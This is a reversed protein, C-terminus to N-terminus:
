GIGTGRPFVDRKAKPLMEYLNNIVMQMRPVDESSAAEYGQDILEQAKTQDNYEDIRSAYHSYFLWSLFSPVRWRVRFVLDWLRQTVDKIRHVNNSRLIERESSLIDELNRKEPETGHEEVYERCSRKAQFFELKIDTIKQEQTLNSLKQALKRKQDEYQFRADTVDDDSMSKLNDLLTELEDKLQVVAIATEYDEAAEIKEAEDEAQAVLLEVEDFLKGLHVQRESATFVNTFEQDTMMLYASIRLDRSESIEITIEVDSGKVLDRELEEGTVAIYGIPQNVTPLASEPGELINIIVKDNDGKRITRTVEKTLTRRLPLIENKRFVVELRTHQDEVNDVELCIDNPLPQGTVSFQGQAIGITPLDTKVPNNQADYITISFYNFANAVLSLDEEIRAAVAKLGSDFGKDERVIRYFLGNIEGKITATFYEADETSARQYAMKVQLDAQPAESDSAAEGVMPAVSRMVRTAAYHAAGIGVATTPDINCNIEVGLESALQTRVKPIYTSGGVMLVFRLDQPELGNRTIISHIMDVTSSVFPAILAEFQDRTITLLIDLLEGEEDEVEFEIDASEHSSLQIKAEEAKMLLQFWLRNYTGSASKLNTALDTFKGEEYLHPVVLKEVILADFDTGGLFNNGEHDIVRMEGDQIRVLAVDFTGGGLDYVLWQGDQDEIADEQKNVYALSAAIPEQLLEVYSFGAEIGAEKTANSQVTDFSAPITLVAAKAQEGTHVFNKLEKLVQASLQVPSVSDNISAIPYRVSTGMKRKFTAVVNDPDRQVYERAKDGVLIRNKRYAVVSPLTEKQSLPNRFVEVKGHTCKAIVSNTTGLDIGFNITNSM